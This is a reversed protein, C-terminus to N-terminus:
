GGSQKRLLCCIWSCWAPKSLGLVDSHAQWRQSVHKYTQQAVFFQGRTNLGFVHDFEELTVDGVSAGRAALEVTIGRGIGRSDGTMM